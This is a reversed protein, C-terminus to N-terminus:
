LHTVPGGAVIGCPPVAEDRFSTVVEGTSLRARALDFVERETRSNLADVRIWTEWSEQPKLRKPLPRDRQIVYLPPTIEFWIHTVEIDGDTGINTANIFFCDPGIPLFAARHVALRLKTPPTPRVHVMGRAVLAKLLRDLGTPHFLDVWQWKQLREPVACEELRVPIIFIQREPQEDAVDLAYKIEKQVYGTKAVSNRSLCVLVVASSRVAKGIEQDWDQGPLIDEEDLWPDAGHERLLRWLGRVRDKDEFSHCLFVKRSGNKGVEPM